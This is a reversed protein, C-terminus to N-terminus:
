SSWVQSSPAIGDRRKLVIAQQDQNRLGFNVLFHCLDLDVNPNIEGTVRITDNDIDIFTRTPRQLTVGLYM